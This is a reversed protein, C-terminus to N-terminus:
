SKQAEVRKKLTARTIGLLEAAKAHNGDTEKLAREIMAMEIKELIGNEGTARVLRYLLDYAESLSLAPPATPASQASGGPIAVEPKSAAAEVPKVVGPWPVM